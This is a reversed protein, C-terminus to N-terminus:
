KFFKNCAGDGLAEIRLALESIALLERLLHPLQDLALLLPDERSRVWDVRPM